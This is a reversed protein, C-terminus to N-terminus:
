CLFLTIMNKFESSHQRSWLDLMPSAIDLDAVNILVNTTAKTEAAKMLNIQPEDCAEGANSSHDKVVAQMADMLSAAKVRILPPVPRFITLLETM